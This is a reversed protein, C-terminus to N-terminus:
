HRRFVRTTVVASRIEAACLSSSSSPMSANCHLRKGAFVCFPLIRTVPKACLPTPWITLHFCLGYPHGAARASSSTDSPPMWVSAAGCTTPCAQSCSHPLSSLSDVIPCSLQASVDGRKRGGAPAATKMSCLETVTHHSRPSRRYVISHPRRDRVVRRLVIGTDGSPPTCRKYKTKTDPNSATARPAHACSAAHPPSSREGAALM